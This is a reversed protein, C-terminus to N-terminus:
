AGIALLYEIEIEQIRITRGIRTARLQGRTILRRITKTSVNLREAVDEVSLLPAPRPPRSTGSDRDPAIPRDEPVAKASTESSPRLAWAPINGTQEHVPSGLRVKTKSDSADSLRSASTEQNFSIRLSDDSRRSRMARNGQLRDLGGSARGGRSRMTRRADDM